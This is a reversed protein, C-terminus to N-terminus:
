CNKILSIDTKLECIKSFKKTKFIEIKYEKIFFIYHEDKSILFKQIEDKFSYLEKENNTEFIKVEKACNLLVIRNM